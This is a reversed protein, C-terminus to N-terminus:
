EQILLVRTGVGRGALSLCGVRVAGETGFGPVQEAVKLISSSITRGWQLGETSARGGCLM